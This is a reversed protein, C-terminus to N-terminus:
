FGGDLMSGPMGSGLDETGGGSFPSELLGSAGGGTARDIEQFLKFMYRVDAMQGKVGGLKRDFDAFFSSSSMGNVTTRGLGEAHYGSLVELRYFVQEFLPLISRMKIVGRSLKSKVQFLTGSSSSGERGYREFLQRNAAMERYAAEFRPLYDRYQRIFGKNFTSAGSKFVEMRKSIWYSRYLELEEAKVEYSALNSEPVNEVVSGPKALASRGQPDACEVAGEDCLILVGGEPSSAVDFNTGRVGMVATATRVNFSENGALKQVRFSLSGKMMTFSSQSKGQVSDETLYFSTGPKVKVLASTGAPTVVDIEALGDEGTEVTDQPEVFFGIDVNRWDLKKGDRWVDVTGELYVIEGGLEGAFLFSASLCILFLLIITKKLMTM